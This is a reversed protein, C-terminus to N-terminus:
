KDLGNRFQYFSPEAKRWARYAESYAHIRARNEPTDKVVAADMFVQAGAGDPVVHSWGDRRSVLLGYHTITGNEGVVLVRMYRVGTTTSDM